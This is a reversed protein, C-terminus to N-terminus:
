HHAAHEDPAPEPTKIAGAALKIAFVIFLLVMLAAAVAGTGLMVEDRDSLAAFAPATGGAFALLAFAISLLFRSIM